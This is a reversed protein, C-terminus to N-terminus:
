PGPSLYDCYTGYQDCCVTYCCTPCWIIVCSVCATVSGKCALNCAGCCVALCVPRSSCGCCYGRCQGFVGCDSGSSCEYNCNSLPKVNGNTSIMTTRSTNDGFEILRAVTKVGQVPKSFEYYAIVHKKDKLPLGIALMEIKEGNYEM